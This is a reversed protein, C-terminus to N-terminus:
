LSLMQYTFHLMGSATAALSLLCLAIIVIKSRDHKAIFRGALHWWLCSIKCSIQARHSAALLRWHSCWSSHLEM